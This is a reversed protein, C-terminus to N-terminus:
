RPAELVKALRLLAIKRLEDAVVVAETAEDNGLRARLDALIEAATLGTACILFVRGFREEYAANAKRLQEQTDADHVVGSQEQRSWAAEREPGTARDGIRPHAALARDVEAATLGRAAEDAVGLADAAEAYPRGDRVAAVWSPVDCCASLWATARPAPAANFESLAV